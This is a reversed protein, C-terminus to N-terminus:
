WNIFGDDVYISVCILDGKDFIGGGWFFVVVVFFLFFQIIKLIKFVGIGIECVFDRIIFIEM